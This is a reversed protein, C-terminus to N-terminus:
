PLDIWWVLRVALIDIYRKMIDRQENLRQLEAYGVTGEYELRENAPDCLGKGGAYIKSRNKEVIAYQKKIFAELRKFREKVELMEEEVRQKATTKACSDKSENEEGSSVEDITVIKASKGDKHIAEDTKEPNVSWKKTAENYVVDFYSEGNISSYIVVHWNGHKFFTKMTFFFSNEITHEGLYKIFVKEGTEQMAQKKKKYTTGKM